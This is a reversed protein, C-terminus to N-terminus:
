LWSFIFNNTPVSGSVLIKPTTVEALLFGNVM